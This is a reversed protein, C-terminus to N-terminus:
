SSFEPSSATARSQAALLARRVVVPTLERRYSAPTVPDDLPDVMEAVAAACASFAEETAPSGELLSEAQTLRRPFEEIAGLGIRVNAMAGDREEYSALCMGLAFDGARRNFEYFGFRADDPLLPLRVAVILEDTERATSMAGQIFDRAAVQRTGRQSALVIEAGLTTAALCWESAPDAHALSGCFTGRQRIPYHAIYHSVQALLAGLPNACVPRHFQAHRATAGIVLSRGDISVGGLGPIANIDVLHPPYTVRLAMMPVLSQGGALVLGGAEAVEALIAVAAEVSDPRHLVFPAPKV